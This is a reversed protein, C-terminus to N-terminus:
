GKLRWSIKRNRTKRKRRRRSADRRFSFRLFLISIDEKIRELITDRYRTDVISRIVAGKVKVSDKLALVSETGVFIRQNTKQIFKLARLVACAETAFVASLAIPKSRYNRIEDTSLRDNIPM